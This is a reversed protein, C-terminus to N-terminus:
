DFDSEALDPVIVTRAGTFRSSWYPTEMSEIRVQGGTRPAHIFSGQGVYIGVHSVAADEDAGVLQRVTVAKGRVGPPNGPTGADIAFFVLDGPRPEAISVLGHYQAEVTRPIRYGARGYVYYTFGSCDFGEEDAGGYLYPRGELSEAVRLVEALQDGALGSHPAAELRVWALMSGHHTLVLALLAMGAYLGLCCQIRRVARARRAPSISKPTNPTEM